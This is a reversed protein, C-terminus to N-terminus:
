WYHIKQGKVFLGKRYIGLYISKGENLGGLSVLKVGYGDLVNEKLPGFYYSLGPEM